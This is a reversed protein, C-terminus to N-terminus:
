KATLKKMRTTGDRQIEKRINLKLNQWTILCGSRRNQHLRWEVAAVATDGLRLLVENWKGFGGVRWLQGGLYGLSNGWDRRHAAWYSVSIFHAFDISICGLGIITAYRTQLIHWFRAVTVRPKLNPLRLVDAFYRSEDCGTPARLLCPVIM